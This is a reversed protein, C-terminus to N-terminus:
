SASSLSMGPQTLPLSDDKGSETDPEGMAFGADEDDAFYSNAEGLTMNMVRNKAQADSVGETTRRVHIFALVYTLMMPQQQMLNYLDLGFQQQIAIQDFGTISEQMEAMTVDTTAM